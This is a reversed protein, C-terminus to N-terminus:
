QERKRPDAPPPRAPVTPRALQPRGQQGPPAVPQRAAQAAAQKAAMNARFQELFGGGGPKPATAPAAFGPRNAPGTAPNPRAADHQAAMRSAQTERTLPEHAQNQRAMSERAAAERTVSQHQAAANTQGRPSARSLPANKIEQQHEQIRQTRRQDLTAMVREHKGVLLNDHPHPAQFFTPVHELLRPASNRHFDVFGAHDPTVDIKGAANSITTGGAHVNDYTGADQGPTGEPVYAPEHDTGRVGITATPTVVAYKTPNNKGIFGTISRFSGKLLGLVSKDDSDGNAQYQSVRMQTNPRIAIYGGDAMDIHLEGSQTVVADGEYLKDGVKPARSTKDPAVISAGPDAVSVTGALNRPAAATADAPIAAAGASSATAPSAPPTVSPSAASAQVSTVAPSTSKTAAPTQASASTFLLLGLVVLISSRRAGIKM